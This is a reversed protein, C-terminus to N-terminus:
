KENTIFWDNLDKFGNYIHNMKEISIEIEFEELAKLLAEEFKKGASDNDFWLKLEGYKDDKIYYAVQKYLNGSNLIICDNKPISRNQMTLMTLFDSAGEFVDLINVSQSGKIITIDKVGIMTKFGSPMRVDFSGARTKFGLGYMKKNSKINLFYIQRLYKKALAFPINKTKLYNILSTSFIEKNTLIAYPQQKKSIINNPKKLEKQCSSSISQGRLQEFWKLVSSISNDLGQDKLYVQAFRILDGGRETDGFDKYIDHQLNIHFSPTNENPRLPSIYWLDNGKSKQRDPYHGLTSLLSELTYKEKVQKINM